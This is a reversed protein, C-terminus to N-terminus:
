VDFVLELSDTTLDIVFGYLEHLETDGTVAISCAIVAGDDRQYSKIRGGQATGVGVPYLVLYHYCAAWLRRGSAVGM